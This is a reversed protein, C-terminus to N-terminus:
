KMKEAQAITKEFSEYNSKHWGAERMLNVSTQLDTMLEASLKRLELIQNVYHATQLEPPM